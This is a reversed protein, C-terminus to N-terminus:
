QTGVQCKGGVGGHRFDRGGSRSGGGQLFGIGGAAIGVVLVGVREIFGEGLLAIGTCLGLDARHIGKTFETLAIHGFSDSM